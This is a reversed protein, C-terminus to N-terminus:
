MTKKTMTQESWSSLSNIPAEREAILYASVYARRYREVASNILFADAFRKRIVSAVFCDDRTAPSMTAM